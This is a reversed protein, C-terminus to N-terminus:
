RVGQLLWISYRVDRFANPQLPIAILHHEAAFNRTSLSDSIRDRLWTALRRRLVDM